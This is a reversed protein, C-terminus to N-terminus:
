HGTAPFFGGLPHQAVMAELFCAPSRGYSGEDVALHLEEAAMATEADVLKDVAVRKVSEVVLATIPLGARRCSLYVQMGRGETVGNGDVAVLVM